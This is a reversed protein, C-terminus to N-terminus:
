NTYLGAGEDLLYKVIKLSNDGAAAHLLTNGTDADKSTNLMEIKKETDPFAKTLIAVVEDYSDFLVAQQMLLLNLLINKM